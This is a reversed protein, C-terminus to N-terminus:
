KAGCSFYIGVAINKSHATFFKTKPIDFFKQLAGVVIYNQLEKLEFVLLKYFADIHGVFFIKKIM